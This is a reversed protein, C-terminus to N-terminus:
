EQALDRLYVHTVFLQGGLDVLNTAETEFLAFQGTRSIVPNRTQRNADEGPRGSVVTLTREQRDLLWMDGINWFAVYRGDGSISPWYSDSPFLSGDLKASVLTTTGAQRDRLYVDSIANTDASVLPEYSTFAVFRADDSIWADTGTRVAGTSDISAADTTGGQRDRVWVRSGAALSAASLNQRSMFVAFRADFSLRPTELYGAFSDNPVDGGGTPVSLREYTGSARTWLYADADQGQDGSAYDRGNSWFAVASGDGSIWPQFGGGYTYAGSPLPSEEFSVDAVITSQSTQADFLVVGDDNFGSEGEEFVARANSAYVVYRGDASISPANGALYNLTTAIPAGNRDRSVLTTTGLETDRLFVDVLENVDGAVLNTAQSTFAVFRGDDSMTRSRASVTSSSYLGSGDNGPAGDLGRSILSIASAVGCAVDESFESTVNREGLRTATFTIKKSGTCVIRGSPPFAFDGAADAFTEGLWAVGEGNKPNGARPGTEVAYVDVRALAEAKGRVRGTEDDYALATPYPVNGNAKKKKANVTVGGPALDIGRGGNDGFLTRAVEVQAGADAYLGNGRNGAITGGRVLANTKKGVLVGAGCGQYTGDVSTTTRGTVDLAAAKCGKVVNKTLTAEGPGKALLVGPGAGGDITNEELTLGDTAEGALVLAGSKGGSKVTNKRVVADKAATILLTRLSGGEVSNGEVLCETALPSAGILAGVTWKGTATITNGKVRLFGADGTVQHMTVSFPTTRTEAIKGPKVVLSTGAKTVTIPYPKKKGADSLVGTVVNDLVELDPRHAGLTACANKEITLKGDISLDAHFARVDGTFTNDFVRGSRTQFVADGVVSNKEFSFGSCNAEHFGGTSADTWTDHSWTSNTSGFDSIATDGKAERVDFTNDAVQAGSTFLLDLGGNGLLTNNRFVFGATLTGDDFNRGSGAVVHFDAFRMGTITTDAGEVNLVGGRLEAPGEITLGTLARPVYLESHAVPDIRISFNQAFRITDGPQAVSLVQRLSGEVPAAFSDSGVTVTRIEGAAAGRPAALLAVALAFVAAARRLTRV